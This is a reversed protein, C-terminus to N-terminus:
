ATVEILAMMGKDGHESVHCHYVTRGTYNSLPVLLELREGPKLNVMDRWARFPEPRGNRAIVQFYWTHLHFPHDMTGVNEVQWLELDGLRARADIRRPDFPRGNMFFMAMTIHRRVAADEARVAPVADLRQPLGPGTARAAPLITMLTREMSHHTIRRDYPLDRLELIRGPDPQVLLDAREGPVLLVEAVEVPKEIYHGDTAILHLPEGDSLTLRFYRANSANILRLRLTGARARLQPQVAGNVLVLDGQKGEHWDHVRHPTPRGREDLALDKLMVIREDAGALEPMAELPGEVILPGALGAWLQRAITGHVHPHYWYTGAIGRPVEFEYVLTEGPPIHLWINDARGTPPVHLGHFHLNTAEPLRNTFRLRATEGESLRVLPGPFSGGYTWLMARRGDVMVHAPRADLDIEILGPEPRRLPALPIEPLDPSESAGARRTL